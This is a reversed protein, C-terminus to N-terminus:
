LHCGHSGSKLRDLDPKNDENANTWQEDSKISIRGIQSFTFDTTTIEKRRDKKLFLIICDMASTKGSNNASIFITEQPSIAIRCSKLKRFNQIDAFVINM